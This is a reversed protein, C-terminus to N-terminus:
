MGGGLRTRGTKDGVYVCFDGGPYYTKPGWGFDVVWIHHGFSPEGPWAIDIDITHYRATPEAYESLEVGSREAARKAIEIAESKTLHAGAPKGESLQPQALPLRNACSMPLLLLAWATFLFFRRIM